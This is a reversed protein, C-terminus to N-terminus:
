KLPKIPFEFVSRWNLCTSVNHVASLTESLQLWYAVLGYQELVPFPGIYRPALKGKIGFRSVGKMPSVKLYVYDGVLFYLPQRRKDAYSKQRAQAEKLNHIIWQVKEETEKVM